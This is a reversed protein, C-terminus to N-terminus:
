LLVEDAEASSACSSSMLGQTHKKNEEGEEHHTKDEEDKGSYINEEGEEDKEGSRQRRSSHSSSVNVCTPSTDEEHAKTDEENPAPPKQSPLCFFWKGVFAKTKRPMGSLHNKLIGRWWRLDHSVGLAKNGETICKGSEVPGGILFQLLWDKAPQVDRGNARVKKTELADEAAVNTKGLWAITVLQKALELRHEPALHAARRNLIETAKYHDLQEIRYVLGVPQLAVNAKIPLLLRKADDEPDPCVVFAMRSINVYAASGGVRGVVERTDRKNLHKVFLITVRRRAALEALPDLISRIDADKHDDIKPGLYAAAPDIVILRVNPRADLERDLNTLCQLSFPLTGNAGALGDIRRVRSVNAGLAELRPRVTDAFDDECSLLLVDCPECPPYNLDFCPRGATLNATVDQTIFSKGLGGAGALLVLKGLPLYGPVLWTVPEMRITDLATTLLGAVPAAAATKAQHKATLDTVIKVIESEPLPPRCRKAWAMADVAIKAPDTGYALAAGVLSLARRHRDGESAGPDTVLEGGGVTLVIEPQAIKALVYAPLEAVGADEPEVLWRYAIGSPHTSPPFLSQAGKGNSGTRFEIAGFKFVSQEPFPIAASWRFLRHKGRKAVFTPVVPATDGLLKCLENEAKESDCEVDILGSRPGLLIGVNSEPQQEWWSAITAPDASAENQWSALWPKKDRAKVPVIPWGRRAYDLAAQLFLNASM